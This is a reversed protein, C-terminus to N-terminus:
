TLWIVEVVMDRSVSVVRYEFGVERSLRDLTQLLTAQTFRFVQARNGVRTLALALWRRIGGGSTWNQIPESFVFRRSARRIRTFLEGLCPEFHYLSGMMVCLDCSPLLDCTLLDAQRADHGRRVANTVFVPSADLGIWGMGRQRCAEAVVVDGFCLEMVLRDTARILDTVHCFRARYQGRYLLGMMLRYLVISRYLISEIM